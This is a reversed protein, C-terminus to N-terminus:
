SSQYLSQHFGHYLLPAPLWSLNIAWPSSSSRNSQVWALLTVVPLSNNGVNRGITEQASPVFLLRTEARIQLAYLLRDSNPSTFPEAPTRKHCQRPVSWYIHTVWPVATCPASCFVGLVNNIWINQQAQSRNQRDHCPGTDQQAMSNKWTEAQSAETM